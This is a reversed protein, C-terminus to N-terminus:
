AEDRMRALVGEWYSAPNSSFSKRETIQGDPRIAVKTARILVNYDRVMSDPADAFLVWDGIGQQDRFQRLTEITEAPNIGVVLVM